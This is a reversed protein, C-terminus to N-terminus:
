SLFDTLLVKEGAEVRIVDEDWEGALLKQFLRGTGEMEEYYLGFEEGFDKAIQEYKELDYAGTNLMVVRRYHVLIQKMFVRAREEGYREKYKHYELLHCEGEDSEIFGKTLYLTGLEKEAVKSFTHQSGYFLAICDHVKPIILIHEKSTLNILSNSCLGFGLIIYKVDPDVADIIQQIIMGLKEPRSHHEFPVIDVITEKPILSSFEKFVTNCIILHYESGHLTLRDAKDKSDM